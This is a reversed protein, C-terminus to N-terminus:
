SRLTPCSAATPPSASVFVKLASVVTTARVSAADSWTQGRSDKGAVDFQITSNALIVTRSDVVKFEGAEIRDLTALISGDQTVVVDTLADDGTNTILASMDATEGPCFSTFQFPNSGKLDAQIQPTGTLWGSVTDPTRRNPDPVLSLPQSIGERVLRLPVFSAPANALGILVVQGGRPVASLVTVPVPPAACATGRVVVMVGNVPFVVEGLALIVSLALLPKEGFASGTRM